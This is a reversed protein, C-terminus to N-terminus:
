RGLPDLGDEADRRPRVHVRDHPGRVRLQLIVLLDAGRRHPGAVGQRAGLACALQFAALQSVPDRARLRGRLLRFPAVERRHEGAERRSARDLGRGRDVLQPEAREFADLQHLREFLRELDRDVFCPERGRLGDRIEVRQRLRELRAARRRDDRVRGDDVEWAPVTRPQRARQPARAERRPDERDSADERAHRDGAELMELTHRPGDDEGRVVLTMEVRGRDQIRQRRLPAVADRGRHRLFEELRMEIRFLEAPARPEGVAQVVVERRQEEVRERKRLALRPRALRQAVDAFHQAASPRNQNKRFSVAGFM